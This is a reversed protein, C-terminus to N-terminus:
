RPSLHLRNGIGPNIAPALDRNPMKALFSQLEASTFQYDYGEALEVITNFDTAMQIKRQLSNDEKVIVFFNRVNKMAM